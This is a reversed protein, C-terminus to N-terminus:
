RALEIILEQHGTNPFLDYSRIRICRFGSAMLLQADRLGTAIDCCVLLVCRARSGIVWEIVEGAGSRPPDLLVLDVEAPAGVPYPSIGLLDQHNFVADGHSATAQTFAAGCDDAWDYGHVTYGAKLLPVTFTGAGCFLEVAVRGGHSRAAEEIVDAMVSAIEANGQVFATAPLSLTASGISVDVCTEGWCRSPKGRPEIRGAVKGDFGLLRVEGEEAAHNSLSQRLPELAEVLEPLAVACSPVSVIRGSRAQRFGLEVEGGAGTRYALRLRNRYSLGEGGVVGPLDIDADVHERLLRKKVESHLILDLQERQMEISGAMWPCGGCEEHFSCAARVRHESPAVLEKVRARAWRKKKKLVEADIRDGPVTKPVFVVLGDLEGGEVIGVGDGGNAWRRILLDRIVRVPM